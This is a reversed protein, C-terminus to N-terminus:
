ENKLTEIANKNAAQIVSKSVTLLIVALLISASLSFLTVEINIHYAFNQLWEMGVWWTLPLGLVFAVAGTRIFDKLLIKIIDFGHAGFIKRVGFEKM